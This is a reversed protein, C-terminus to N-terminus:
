FTQLGSRDAGRVPAGDGGRAPHAVVPAPRAEPVAAIREGVAEDCAFAQAFAREMPVVADLDWEDPHEELYRLFVQRYQELTINRNAECAWHAITDTRANTQTVGRIFGLCHAGMTARAGAAAVDRPDDLARDISRCDDMLGWASSHDRAVMEDGGGDAAQGARGRAAESSVSTRFLGMSSRVASNFATNLALSPPAGTTQACAALLLLSAAPLTWRSM